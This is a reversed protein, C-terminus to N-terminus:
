QAAELTTSETERALETGDANQVSAILQTLNNAPVGVVKAVLQVTVSEGLGLPFLSTNAQKGEGTVSVGNGEASVFDLEAPLTFVVKLNGMAESGEDDKREIEETPSGLRLKGGPIPIMAFSIDTGPIQERYAKM